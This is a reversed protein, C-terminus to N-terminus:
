EQFAVQLTAKLEVSFNVKSFGELVVKCAVKTVM